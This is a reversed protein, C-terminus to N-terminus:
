GGGGRERREGKGVEGERIGVSSPPLLKSIVTTTTTPPTAKILFIFLPAETAEELM